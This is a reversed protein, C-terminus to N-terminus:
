RWFPPDRATANAVGAINTGNIRFYASGDSYKPIINTQKGPGDDLGIVIGGSAGSSTNTINWASVHASDRVFNPTTATAPNFNSDIYVTSSADVGTYGLDATFSPSGHATGAYSASILNLLAEGISSPIRNV